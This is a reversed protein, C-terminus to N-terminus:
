CSSLHVKVVSSQGTAQQGFCVAAPPPISAALLASYCAAQRSDQAGTPQTVGARYGAAALTSCETSPTDPSGRLVPQMATNQLRGPQLMGEQWKGDWSFSHALCCLGAVTQMCGRSVAERRDQLRGGRPFHMHLLSSMAATLAEPFPRAGAPQETKIPISCCSLPVPLLLRGCSQVLVKLLLLACARAPSIHPCPHHSIWM